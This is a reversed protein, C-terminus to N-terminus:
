SRGPKFRPSPVQVGTIRESTDHLTKSGNGVPIAPFSVGLYQRCKSTVIKSLLSLYSPFNFWTLQHHDGNKWSDRYIESPNASCRLTRAPKFRRNVSGYEYETLQLWLRSRQM